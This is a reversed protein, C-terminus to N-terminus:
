SVGGMSLGHMAIRKKAPHRWELVKREKQIAEEYLGKFMAIESDNARNDLAFRYLAGYVYADPTLLGKPLSDGTAITEIRTQHLRVTPYTAGTATAPKPLLGIVNATASRWHYYRSPTGSGLRRWGREEQNLYEIDVPELPRRDTASTLYEAAILGICVESYAYEQQDAVLTLDETATILPLQWLVDQHVLNIYEDATADVFDPFRRQVKNEVQAVTYQAM